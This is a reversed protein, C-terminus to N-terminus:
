FALIQVDQAEEIIRAVDEMYDLEQEIMQEELNEIKMQQEWNPDGEFIECLALNKWYRKEFHPFSCFIDYSSSSLQSHAFREIM